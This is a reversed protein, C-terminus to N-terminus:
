ISLETAPMKVWKAMEIAMRLYRRFGVPISM